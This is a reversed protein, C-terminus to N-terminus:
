HNLHEPNIGIPHMKYWASEALCQASLETTRFFQDYAREVERMRYIGLNQQVCDHYVGYSRYAGATETMETLQRRLSANEQRLEENEHQSNDYLWEWRDSIDEWNGNLFREHMYLNGSVVFAFLTILTLVHPRFSFAPSAVSKELKQTEM